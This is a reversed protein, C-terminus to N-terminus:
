AKHYGTGRQIESARYLQEMLMVAALEHPFTMNSLSLRVAKNLRSDDPWGEAPGIALHVTDSALQWGEIRKSFAVSGEHIGGEDLLVLQGSFGTLREVYDAASRKSSHCEHRVGRGVLRDAYMEILRKMAKDKPAGHLHVAIRGMVGKHPKAVEFRQSVSLVMFGFGSAVAHSPPWKALFGPDGAVGVIRYEFVRSRPQRFKSIRTLHIKVLRLFGSALNPLHLDFPFFGHISAVHCRGQPLTQLATCKAQQRAAIRFPQTPQIVQLEPFGTPFWLM